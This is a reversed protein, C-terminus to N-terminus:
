VVFMVVVLCYVLGRGKACDSTTSENSAYCFVLETLVDALIANMKCEDCVNVGAVDEIQTKEDTDDLSPFSIAAVRDQPTRVNSDNKFLEIASLDDCVHKVRFSDDFKFAYDAPKEVKFLLEKWEIISGAFKKMMPKRISAQIRDGVQDVLVMEISFTRSSEDIPYIEWIRVIRVKLRWNQKRPSVSGINDYAGVM